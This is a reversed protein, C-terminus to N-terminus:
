LKFRVLDIAVTPFQDILGDAIFNVARLIPGADSGEEKVVALESPTRCKNGNDMNSISLM